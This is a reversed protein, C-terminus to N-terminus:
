PWLSVEPQGDRLVTYKRSDMMIFNPEMRPIVYGCFIEWDAPASTNYSCFRDQRAVFETKSPVEAPILDNFIVEFGDLRAPIIGLPRMSASFDERIQELYKKNNPHTVIKIAFRWINLPLGCDRGVAPLTSPKVM